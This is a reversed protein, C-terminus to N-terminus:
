PGFIILISKLTILWFDHFDFFISFFDFFYKKEFIDLIPERHGLSHKCGNPLYPPVGLVLKQYKQFFINKQNKKSKKSKWSKSRNRQFATKDKKAWLIVLLPGFGM